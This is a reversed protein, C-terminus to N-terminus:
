VLGIQLFLKHNFPLIRSHVHVSHKMPIHCDTKMNFLWAIEDIKGMDNVRRSRSLGKEYWYILANGNVYSSKNRMRMQNFVLCGTGKIFLICWRSFLIEFNPRFHSPCQFLIYHHLYLTMCQECWNFNLPNEELLLTRFLFFPLM